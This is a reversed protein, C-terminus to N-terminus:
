YNSKLKGIMLYGALASQMVCSVFFIRDNSACIKPSLMLVMTPASSIMYFLSANVREKLSKNIILIGLGSVVITLNLLVAKSVAGASLYSSSTLREVRLLSILYQNSIFEYKNEAAILLIFASLTYLALRSNPINCRLAIALTLLLTTLSFYFYQAYVINFGLMLKGVLGFDTYDPFWHNLEQTYPLANGPCSVIYIIVVILCCVPIILEDRQEKKLNVALVIILFLSVIAM